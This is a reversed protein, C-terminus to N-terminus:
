FFAKVFSEFKNMNNECQNFFTNACVEAESDYSKVCGNEDYIQQMCEDYDFGQKLLGGVFNRLENKSVTKM